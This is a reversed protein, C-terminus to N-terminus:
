PAFGEACEGANNSTIVGNASAAYTPSSVTKASTAPCASCVHFARPWVRQPQCDNRSTGPADIQQHTRGVFFSQTHLRQKIRRTPFYARSRYTIPDRRRHSRWLDPRFYAESAQTPKHHPCRNSVTLRKIPPLRPHSRLFDARAFPAQNRSLARFFRPPPLARGLRLLLNRFMRSVVM